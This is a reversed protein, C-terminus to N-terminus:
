KKEGLIKFEKYLSLFNDVNEHENVFTENAEKGEDLSEYETRVSMDRNKRHGTLRSGKYRREGREAKMKTLLKDNREKNRPSMQYEGGDDAEMAEDYMAYIDHSKGDTAKHMGHKSRLYRRSRQGRRKLKPEAGDEEGPDNLIGRTRDRVAPMASDMEDLPRQMANDGGAVPKNMRKPKNLGGAVGTTVVDVDAVLESPTNTYEIDREEGLHSGFNDEAYQQIEEGFRNYLWETPDGTRAKQTGYPMDELSIMMLAEDIDDNGDELWALIDDDGFKSLITELESGTSDSAMAQARTMPTAIPVEAENFDLDFEDDFEPAYDTDQVRVEEPWEIESTDSGLVVDDPVTKGGYSDRGYGEAVEPEGMMDLMGQMPLDTPEGTDVGDIDPAIDSYGDSSNLGANAMMAALEEGAEPGIATVTTTDNEPNEMNSTQTMTIDENVLKEFNLDFEEYISNNVLDASVIDSLHVKIEKGDLDRIVTGYHGSPSRNVFVGRRNVNGDTFLEASLM